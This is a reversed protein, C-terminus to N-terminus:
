IQVALGQAKWRRARIDSSYPERVGLAARISSKSVGSPAPQIQNVYFDRTLWSPYNQPNGIALGLGTIERPKPFDQLINRVRPWRAGARFNKRTAQKACNSCLNTGSPIKFGCDSCVHQPQQQNVASVDSGKVERKTRQTLRTAIRSRAVRSAPKSISSWLEQAISRTRLWSSQAVHGSDREFNGLRFGVATGM